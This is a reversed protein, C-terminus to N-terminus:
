AGVAEDDSATKQQLFASRCEPKRFQKLNRVYWGRSATVLGGRRGWSAYDGRESHFQVHCKKCLPVLQSCDGGASRYVVHHLQINVASRCVECTLYSM